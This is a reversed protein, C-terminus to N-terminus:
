VHGGMSGPPANRKGAGPARPTSEPSEVGSEEIKEQREEEGEKVRNRAEGHEKPNTKGTM